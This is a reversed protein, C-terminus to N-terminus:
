LKLSVGAMSNAVGLGAEAGARTYETSPIQDIWSSMDRLTELLIIKLEKCGAADEMSMKSSGGCSAITIVTAIAFFIPSKRKMNIMWKLEEKEASM